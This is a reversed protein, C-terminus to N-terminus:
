GLVTGPPNAAATRPNWGAWVFEVGAERAVAADTASDGVYIAREVSVGLRELVPSLQKEAGDFDRSFLAVEPAWGLRSLEAWGSDNYKNSCIAWRDLQAVLDEAGDFPRVSTTDYANVYDEISLGKMACYEEIPHGFTIEERLLGLQLFPLVLAEDSDILTGDLDFIAIDYRSM